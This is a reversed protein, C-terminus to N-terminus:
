SRKSKCSACVCTASDYPRTRVFELCTLCQCGNHAYREVLIDAIDLGERIESLIKAKVNNGAFHTMLLDRGKAGAADGDLVVIVDHRSLMKCVKPSPMVGTGPIAYAEVGMTRAALMDKFGEVIYIKSGTPLTHVRHLGCGVLSDTGAGKISLFPTVYGAREGAKVPDINYALKWADVASLGNVAEKGWREKWKKHALVRERQKLSPRFQMGIVHGAPSEHVEILPYESNILFFRENESTDTVVGAAVLRDWGFRDILAKHLKAADEIYTSGSSRVVEESIHWNSWYKVALDVSGYDRIFNYLEVDVVASFSKEVKEAPVLTIPKRFGEIELLAGVADYFEMGGFDKLLKIADSYSGCPYCKWYEQGTKSSKFVIKKPKDTGCNPCVKQGDKYLGLLAFALSLKGKASNIESENFKRRNQGSPVSSSRDITTM